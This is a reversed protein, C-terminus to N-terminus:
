GSIKDTFTYVGIKHGSKNKSEGIKKVEGKKLLINVRRVVQMANKGESEALQQLTWQKPLYSRGLLKEIQHTQIL